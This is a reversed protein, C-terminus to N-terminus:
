LFIPQRLHSEFGLRDGHVHVIVTAWQERGMVNGKRRGGYGGERGGERRGEGGRVQSFIGDVAAMTNKQFLTTQVLSLDM